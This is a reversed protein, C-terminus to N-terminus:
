GREKQSRRLAVGVHPWGRPGVRRNEEGVVTTDWARRQAVAAKRPVAIATQRAPAADDAEDSDEADDAEDDAAQRRESQRRAEAEDAAEASGDLGTHVVDLDPSVAGDEIEEADVDWDAVEDVVEDPGRAAGHRRRQGRRIGRRRGRVLSARM